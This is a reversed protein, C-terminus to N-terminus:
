KPRMPPISKPMRTLLPMKSDSVSIHKGLANKTNAPLENMDIPHQAMRKSIM